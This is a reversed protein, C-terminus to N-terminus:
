LAHCTIESHPYRIGSLSAATQQFKEPIRYGTDPIQGASFRHGIAHM